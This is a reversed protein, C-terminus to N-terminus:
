REAGPGGGGDRRLKQSSAVRSRGRDNAAANLALELERRNGRDQGQLARPDEVRVVLARLAHGRAGGRTQSQVHLGCLVQTGGKTVTVDAHRTRRSTAREHHRGVYWGAHEDGGDACVALPLLLEVGGEGCRRRKDDIDEVLAGLGALQLM